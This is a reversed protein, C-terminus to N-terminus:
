GGLVLLSASHQSLVAFTVPFSSGVVSLEPFAKYLASDPCQSSRAVQLSKSPRNWAGIFPLVKSLYGPGVSLLIVARDM